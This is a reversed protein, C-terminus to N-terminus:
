NVFSTEVIRPGLEKITKKQVTEKKPNHLSTYCCIFVKKATDRGERRAGRYLCMYIFVPFLYRHCRRILCVLTDVRSRILLGIPVQLGTCVCPLWASDWKAVIEVHSPALFSGKLLIERGLLKVGHRIHTEFNDWFPNIRYIRVIQYYICSSLIHM